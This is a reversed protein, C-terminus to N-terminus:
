AQGSPCQSLLLQQGSRLLAVFDILLRGSDDKHDPFAVLVYLYPIGRRVELSQILFPFVPWYM